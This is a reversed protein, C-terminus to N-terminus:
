RGRETMTPLAKLRAKCQEIIQKVKEPDTICQGPAPLADMRPPVPPLDTKGLQEDLLRTWRAKARDWSANRLDWSGFEVAAWYIAPRSWQDTGVERKRMQKVAEFFTEEYDMPPRCLTLFEPLTPPWIRSMCAVLGHLVEELSYDALAVSWIEKMEGPTVGRWQDIFKQGYMARIRNLLEAARDEAPHRITLQM